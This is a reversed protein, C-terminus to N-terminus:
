LKSKTALKELRDAAIGMRKLCDALEEDNIVLPPSLRLTYNHTIKALVGEEALIVMYEKAAKGGLFKKDFDIACFLGRGRVAEICAHKAKLKELGELLKKGQKASKEPLQEEHMVRLSEIAIACALPNGGFTSGHTGPTIVDMFKKDALVASVPMVGAGLAKALLVMDPRVGEHEIALMKGSRGVGSQVEDCIMMVNYKTCLERVKAFYGAPPINVGAEGQIPEAIFGCIRAGDKKFLAELAKANGYEVRAIGPLAPGYNEFSSPDDSLAICGLTRGHFNETCCVFIAQDAPIKKKEYGWRRSVKIATEVAEAGTNMPLVMEYGFFKTIFEAYVGFMDSYFARSSLTCKTLQETAAKVIRPHVHGHSVSGYGSLFDYYVKGEPNTVKVGSCKSFVVPIPHYNHASSETEMKICGKTSRKKLLAAVEKCAGARNAKM